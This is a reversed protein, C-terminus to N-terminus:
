KATPCDYENAAVVGQGFRQPEAEKDAGVDVGQPLNLTRQRNPQKKGSIQDVLQQGFSGIQVMPVIGGDVGSGEPTIQRTWQVLKGAPISGIEEKTERIACEELTEGAELKGGPFCFEGAHDGKASRLLFLAQNDPTIILVGSATIM